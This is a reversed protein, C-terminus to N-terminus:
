RVWDPNKILDIARQEAGRLAAIHDGGPHFDTLGVICSKQDTGTCDRSVADLLLDTFKVTAELLLHNM